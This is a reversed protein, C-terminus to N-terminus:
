LWMTMILLAQGQLLDTILACKIHVPSFMSATGDQTNVVLTFPRPTGWTPPDFITINLVVSGQGETTTYFVPNYGVTIPVATTLSSLFVMVYHKLLSPYGTIGRPTQNEKDYALCLSVTTM